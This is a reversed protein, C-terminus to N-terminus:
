SMSIDINDKSIMSLTHPHIHHVIVSAMHSSYTKAKNHNQLFIYPGQGVGRGKM